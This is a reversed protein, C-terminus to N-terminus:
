HCFMNNKVKNAELYQSYRSFGFGAIIIFTVNIESWRFLTVWLKFVNNVMTTFDMINNAKWSELLELTTITKHTEIISPIFKVDSIWRWSFLWAVALKMNSLTLKNASCQKALSYFSADHLPKRQFLCCFVKWRQNIKTSYFPCNKVHVTRTIKEKVWFKM